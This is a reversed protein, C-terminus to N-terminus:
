QREVVSFNIGDYRYDSKPNYIRRLKNVADIQKFEAELHEKTYARGTCPCIYHDVIDDGVQNCGGGLSCRFVGGVEGIADPCIDKIYNSLKM